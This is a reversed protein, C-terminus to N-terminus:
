IYINKIILKLIKHQEGGGGCSVHQILRTRVKLKVRTKKFPRYHCGPPPSIGGWGNNKKRRERLDVM